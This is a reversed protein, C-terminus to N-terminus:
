RSRDWAQARLTRAYTPSDPLDDRERWMGFFECTLIDGLTHSSIPSKYTESLMARTKRHHWSQLEEGLVERVIQRVLAEFESKVVTITEAPAKSDM